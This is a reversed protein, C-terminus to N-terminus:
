GQVACRAPPGSSVPLLRCLRAKKDYLRRFHKGNANIGGLWAAFAHQVAGAQRLAGMALGANYYFASAVVNLLLDQAYLYLAHSSGGETLLPYM